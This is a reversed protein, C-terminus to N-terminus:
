LKFISNIIGMLQQKMIPKAIYGDFGAARISQEDGSLAYATQAIVPLCPRIKRIQKLADFGNLVPMKIDMLVLDITNDDRIIDVAEKGNNARFILHNFKSLLASLYLFNTDEDEAILIKRSNSVDGEKMSNDNMLHAKCKKCIIMPISFKFLSGKGYESELDIKGGMMEVYAKAIALGLGSGGRNSTQENLIRHFREFIERHNERDIDIGTDKVYFNLSGGDRMNCEYWFQVSGIDTFKLSNSILNTLIQRLKVPDTKINETLRVKPEVYKLELKKDSPITAILTKAVVGMLLNVDVEELNPAVQGTEIKSMEVIDNILSLLHNGSTNIIEIYNDRQESKLDEEKLLDSFGLIANMPTRIEHSLNALFATKLKNSEEAREKAIHLEINKQVLREEAEKRSSIDSIYGDLYQLNGNEDFVGKGQELVWRTKGDKRVIKYEEKLMGDVKLLAKWRSFLYSRYEEAIVENFSIMKNFKLEDPTYGTVNTCQNSVFIMTWDKDNMCRYVFGPLVDIITALTKRSDDTDEFPLASSNEM